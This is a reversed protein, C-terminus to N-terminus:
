ALHREMRAVNRQNAKWKIDILDGVVPVSGVITDVGVLALMWAVTHAPLGIRYGQYVVYLSPLATLWDGVVPILGLIGDLGIPGVLPLTIAADLLEAVRRARDIRATSAM